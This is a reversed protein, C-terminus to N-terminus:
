KTDLVRPVIDTRAVTEPFPEQWTFTITKREGPQLPGSLTQSASVLTDDKNFLLATIRSEPVVVAGYNQVDATLRLAKEDLNWNIVRVPSVVREVRMFQGPTIDFFVRTPTREGSVFNAEFLPAVEGPGISFTGPRRAILINNEDFLSVEYSFTGGSNTDPNRIMAVAHYVGAAAKVPRAWVVSVQPAKCLLACSGDCDVGGEDQNQVGDFCTAPKYGYTFYAAVALAVLITLAGLAFILQRQLAWRM